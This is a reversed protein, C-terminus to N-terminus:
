EQLSKNLKFPMPLLDKKKFRGVTDVIIQADPSFFEEIVQM